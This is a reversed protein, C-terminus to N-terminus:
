ISESKKVSIKLLIGTAGMVLVLATGGYSIFPLPVGTLPVLAVISALNILTQSTIWIVIGSALLYELSNTSCSRVVRIGFVLYNLYFLIIIVSGVFGVEEAIVAFISDTSAEPIYSVQRSQGFGLGYLGGSGLGLTIQRIHFSSGLPDSEPNLFTTIRKMRYPSFATLISILILALLSILLLKKIPAGSVFYIGFSITLVILASGLDPQLMLLASPLCTLFLFPALKQHNQMWSSFFIVISFKLIEVPQLGFGAISIWRSAGNVTKGIGPVFVLILLIVAVLYSWASTKQWVQLPVLYTCGLVIWGLTLWVLHQRIFHFVTGFDRYSEVVSAHFVFFVGLVTLVATSILIAQASHNTSIAKSM